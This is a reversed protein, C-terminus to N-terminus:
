FNTISLVCFHCKVAMPMVCVILYQVDRSPTQKVQEGNEGIAAELLHPPRCPPGFRGGGTDQLGPEGRGGKEKAEERKRNHFIICHQTIEGIEGTEQGKPVGVERGKRERRGYEERGGIRGPARGGTEGGM